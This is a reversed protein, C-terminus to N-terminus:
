KEKRLLYRDSVADYGWTVPDLHNNTFVWRTEFEADLEAAPIGIEGDGFHTLTFYKGSKNKYWLPIM